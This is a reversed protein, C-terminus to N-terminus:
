RSAIEMGEVVHVVPGSGRGDLERDDTAIHM